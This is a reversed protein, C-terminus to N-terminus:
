QRICDLRVRNQEAPSLQQLAEDVLGQNGMQCAALAIVQWAQPSPLAGKALEIARSHEGRGLAAQADLLRLGPNAPQEPQAAEM